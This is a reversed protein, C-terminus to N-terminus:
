ALSDSGGSPKLVTSSVKVECPEEISLDNDNISARSSTKVGHVQDHCHRHLLGLNDWQNNNHNGDWHHLEILSQTTFYLGCHACKGQQHKLLLSIRKSLGPYNVQRKTWYAWDGDFPTRCGAIKIHRIIRTDRHRVLMLGSPTRFRWGQGSDIGWYRAVHAYRSVNRPKRQREWWLLKGILHYDLFRFSEWSVGHRYYNSWGRILPNLRVILDSQPACGYATIIQNLKVRQQKVKDPAPKMLTKFLQDGKQSPRKGSYKGVPYQRIWFGLFEFGTQLNELTGDLTHALRTKDPRLSLGIGSLWQALSAQAAQVISLSEHLVVFDDAYRILRPSPIQRRKGHIRVSHAPFQQHLHQEMGHLAINALLPSIVGGQPTGMPTAMWEGAEMVGAKLWGKLLRRLWAASSVKELLAQHNISDFCHAIDADLVYKAKWQIARFIAEIADHCSRGPRFGYSNPEFKAEWEPELGLKVLAQAARERMTPIGLPRKEERGPKEIWVRRTPTMPTREILSMVLAIRQQPNLNKLGDVGASRKGQNDQTVRRVALLRGYWSKMLLRQLRHVLKVKGCLSARYIRRQLKFVQVQIQKWPLNQWVYRSELAQNM